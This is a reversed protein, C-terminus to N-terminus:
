VTSKRRCRVISPVFDLRLTAWVFSCSRVCWLQQLPLIVDGYVLVIDPKRELAVPEFRKMVEATQVAHSGSGVELNVDPEPMGLQSFFVDSLNRDYHQGTHVLTQQVGPWSDLARMVPAAKM